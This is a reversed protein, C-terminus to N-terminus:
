CRGRNRLSRGTPSRCHPDCGRDTAKEAPVVGVKGDPRWPATSDTQDPFSPPRTLFASLRVSSQQVELIHKTSRVHQSYRCVVPLSGSLPGVRGPSGTESSE